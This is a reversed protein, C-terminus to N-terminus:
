QKKISLATVFIRKKEWEQQGGSLVPINSLKKWSIGDSSTALIVPYYDNGESAATYYMRYGAPVQIIAPCMERTVMDDDYVPNGPHKNWQIGDTSTAYGIKNSNKSEGTYWMKFLNHRTDFIVTGPEVAQDDWQGPTGKELVPTNGSKKLRLLHQGVGTVAYYIDGEQTYWMHFKGDQYIVPGIATIENADLTVPNYPPIDWHIGDTSAAYGIEYTPSDGDKKELRFLMHYDGTDHVIYPNAPHYDNFRNTKNAHIVPNKSYRKWQIGHTSTALGIGGGPSDRSGSKATYWMYCPTHGPIMTLIFVAIAIVVVATYTIVTLKKNKFFPFKWAPSPRGTKQRKGTTDGTSLAPTDEREHKGTPPTKHRAPELLPTTGTEKKEFLDSYIEKINQYRELKDTKLCKLLVGSTTKSIEIIERAPEERTKTQLEDQFPLEGTLMQFLTVGFGWIDAQVNQQWNDPYMEPPLHAWDHIGPMIDTFRRLAKKLQVDWGFNLLKVKGKDTIMINRPKLANHYVGNEHAEILALLVQEMIALAEKEEFKKGTKKKLQKDLSEGKVYEMVIFNLNGDKDITDVNVVNWHAAHRTNILEEKIADVEKKSLNYKRPFLKIAKEIEEMQDFAKYIIGRGSSDLIGTLRYRDRLERGILLDPIFIKELIEDIYTRRDLKIRKEPHTEMMSLLLQYLNTKEKRKQKEAYPLAAIEETSIELLELKKQIEKKLSNFIHYNVKLLCRNSKHWSQVSKVGISKKFEEESELPPLPDLEHRCYDHEDSSFDTVIIFENDYLPINIENGLFLRAFAAGASFIDAQRTIPTSHSFMEPAIHGPTGCLQVKGDKFDKIEPYLEFYGIKLRDNVLFLNTLKIDFHARNGAHMVSLSKLFQKFWKFKNDFSDNMRNELIDGAAEWTFVYVSKDLRLQRTESDKKIYLSRVVFPAGRSNLYYHIYEEDKERTVTKLRNEYNDDRYSMRLAAYENQLSAWFLYGNKGKGLAQILQFSEERGQKKEGRIFIQGEYQKNSIIEYLEDLKITKGPENEDILQPEM